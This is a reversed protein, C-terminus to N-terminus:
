GKQRLYLCIQQAAHQSKQKIQDILHQKSLVWDTRNKLLNIAEAAIAQPDLQETSGAAKMEMANLFHDIKPDYSIGIMPIAYAAAYILSHLRMGIILNCASVQDLMDQPHSTDAVISVRDRYDPGLRNIVYESAELDSPPHFPLFRLKVTEQDLILRLAATLQDLDTRHRHWFRVSIGVIPVIDAPRPAGVSAPVAEAAQAAGPALATGTGAASAANAQAVQAQVQTAQAAGAAGAQGASASALVAPKLRLGMVPDSVIEIRDSRVGIAQLIKVSEADRVSVYQSKNFANRILPHFLDRFVPGIGQSYIFTPKGLWQALKIIGLYYPITTRGTMDQLLSGGGSILGDSQRLCQIIQFLNTRHIAKIGHMAETAKPKFSLVTPVITMNLKQAEEKLALLISHLLAEDGSNGFGYYGSIVIKKVRSEESQGQESSKGGQVKGM